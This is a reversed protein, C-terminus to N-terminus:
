AHAYYIYKDNARNTWNGTEVLTFGTSTPDAYDYTEEADSTNLELSKDNGSTWGRTTDLVVWSTSARSTNKIIVFRPAFGTTVTNNGSVGTGTYYGCKSIGDVSAFLMAIFSQNNTNGYNGSGLTFHTATPATDNWLIVSDVEATSENLSMCEGWPDVGGNLGKHGVMWQEADSRKKVWIMEASKSLSHSIQRGAVGDGTYTVVDFGAHRKWMWSQWTTNYGNNTLWGTNDDFKGDSYAIEADQKWTYLFKGQMLRAGVEWQYVNATAPQKNLAFDVPFGSTFAQNANSNGTDMAFVDTGAEAPKGVAGDPRRIAMYIYTGNNNNVKDDNIKIKFGTPTLDILDWGAEAQSRSPELVYDTGDTIIGRMSDFIFWQETSLNTNKVLLWQPEWGLFVEPGDANGNGRYSGTKIINQDKEEGFKFGDPDDFPSDTSPIPSNYQSITGPTVTAGTATTTNCCLLKTNTINTLPEYPPRFSSTYLATGKVIRLNSIKGAFFYASDHNSSGGIATNSATPWNITGNDEYTQILNGNFFLKIYSKNSSSVYQKTVSVHTWQGIQPFTTTSIYNYASVQVVFNSNVKGINFGQNDSGYFWSYQNNWGNVDPKIWAEFTSDDTGMGLDSHTGLSIDNAGDFAVSRATAASSEGGAFLYAINTSGSANHHSYSGLSFTTATPATDNWRSSGTAQGDTSDLRLAKTPGLSRHYVIWDGNSDIRKTLILGPICGLNHNVTQNSGTGSYQVVDFLGKQKRFNWSAYNRGSNNQYSSAAITYGDNDFSTLAVGSTSQGDSSNSQIYNSTGRETDFLLNPDSDTRVKFWIMGGKTNDIGNNVSLTNSNGAYLYTSFVDDVYTSGGAAGAAGQMLQISTLDM